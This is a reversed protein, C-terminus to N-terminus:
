VITEWVDMQFWAQDIFYLSFYCAEQACHKMMNKGADYDTVNLYSTQWVPNQLLPWIQKYTHISKMHCM